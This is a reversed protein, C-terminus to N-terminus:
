RTNAAFIFFFLECVSSLLMFEITEDCMENILELRIRFIYACLYRKNHMSTTFELTEFRIVTSFNVKKIFNSIYIYGSLNGIINSSCEASKTYLTLILNEGSFEIRFILDKLVQYPLVKNRKIVKHTYPCNLDRWGLIQCAHQQVNKKNINYFFM